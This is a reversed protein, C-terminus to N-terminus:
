PLEERRILLGKMSASDNHFAMVRQKEEETLGILLKIESDRKMLDVTVILADADKEPRSGVWVDIGQGDMAATGELYGYDMPYVIKPFRPHATGKPRDIVIRKGAVLDDMTRWFEPNWIGRM